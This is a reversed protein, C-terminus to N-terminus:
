SWSRIKATAGIQVSPHKSNFGSGTVSYVFGVAGSLAGTAGAGFCAEGEREREGQRASILSNPAPAAEGIGRNPLDASAPDRVDPRCTWGAIIGGKNGQWTGQERDLKSSGAPCLCCAGASPCLPAVFFFFLLGGLSWNVHELPKYFVMQLQIVSWCILM